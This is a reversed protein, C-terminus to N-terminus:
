EEEDNQLIEEYIDDISNESDGFDFGTKALIEEVDILENL